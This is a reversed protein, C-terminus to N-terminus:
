YNRRPLLKHIGPICFWLLIKSTVRHEFIMYGPLVGFLNNKADIKWDLGILPMFYNGFFEKNYYLGFKFSVYQNKGPPSSLEEMNGTMM